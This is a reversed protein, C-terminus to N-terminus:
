LCIGNDCFKQYINLLRSNIMKSYVNSYEREDGFEGFVDGTSQSSIVISEGNSNSFNEDIQKQFVMEVYNLDRDIFEVIEQNTEEVNLDIKTTFLFTKLRNAVGMKVSSLLLRMLTKDKFVGPNVRELKTLDERVLGINRGELVFPDKKVARTAAFKVADPYNCAALFVITPNNRIAPSFKQLLAGDRQVVITAIDKDDVFPNDELMFPIDSFKKSLKLIFDKNHQLSEDAYMIATPNNKVAEEVIVENLTIERSFVALASGNVRVAKLAFDEDNFFTHAHILIHPYKKIAKLLLEENEFFSDPFNDWIFMSYGGLGALAVFFDEDEWMREDILETKGAKVLKIAEEITM